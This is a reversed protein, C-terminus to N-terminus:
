RTSSRRSRRLLPSRSATLAPPPSLPLPSPASPARPIGRLGDGQRHGGDLQGLVPRRPVLPDGQRRGQRRAHLVDGLEVGQREGGDDRLHEHEGAPQRVDLRVRVGGFLLRAGQVHERRADEAAGRPARDRADPLHPLRDPRRRRPRRLQRLRPRGRGVQAGQGGGLRRRHAGEHLDRADRRDGQLRHRLRRVRRRGAHGRRDAQQVGAGPVPQHPLERHRRGRPPDREGAQHRGGDGGPVRPVRRGPPPLQRLGGLGRRDGGLARGGGRRVDGDHDCGQLDNHKKATHKHSSGAPACRRTHSIFNAPPSRLTTACHTTTRPASSLYFQPRAPEDADGRQAALGVSDSLDQSSSSGRASM